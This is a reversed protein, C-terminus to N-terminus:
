KYAHANVALSRLVPSEEALPIELQWQLHWAAKVGGQEVLFNIDEESYTNPFVECMESWFGQLDPQYSIAGGERLGVQNYVAHDGEAFRKAVEDGLNLVRSIYLLGVKDKQEVTATERQSFWLDSLRQAREDDFKFPNIKPSRERAREEELERILTPVETSPISEQQSRRFFEEEKVGM